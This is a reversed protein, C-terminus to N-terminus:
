LSNNGFSEGPQSTRTKASRTMQKANVAYASFGGGCTGAAGPEGFALCVVLEGAFKSHLCAMFTAMEKHRVQVFKMLDGAWELARTTGHRPFGYIRKIGWASVRKLLFDSVQDAM